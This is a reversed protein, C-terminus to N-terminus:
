NSDGHSAPSEVDTQESKEGQSHDLKMINLLQDATLHDNEGADSACVEVKGKSLDM